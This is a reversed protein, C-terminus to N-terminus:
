GRRMSVKSHARRATGRAQFVAGRQDRANGTGDLLAALQALTPAEFIAVPSIPAHFTERIHTVLQLASLSNGGLHFFNEHKEIGAIGLIREWIDALRAVMPNEELPAPRKSRVLQEPLPLGGTDLKGGATLPLSDLVVWFAPVMYEPLQQQAYTRLQAILEKRRASLLPDNAYSRGKAPRVNVSPRAGPKYFLVDYSGDTAGASWRIEVDYAAEAALEWWKEPDIGNADGDAPASRRIQGVTEVSTRRLQESVWRELNFRANPVRHIAVADPQHHCLVQAVQAVSTLHTGWYFTDFSGTPRLQGGVELVVDYRFRTLENHYHGRKLQVEIGTVRDLQASTFCEPDVTAQQEDAMKESIIWQLRKMPLDPAAHSWEISTHFQRLLSYSRLDGLYIFGEDNVLTSVKQLVSHLYEVSPFHQIISNLIAADFREGAIQSLDDATCHVLRPTIPLPSHTLQREVYELAPKFFDTGVYNASHPALRFLLLGTGCGLELINRPKRALIRAVTQNVQERMEEEPIPLGTYSSRWGLINFTPDPCGNGFDALGDYYVREYMHHWQQVREVAPRSDIGSTATVDNVKATIYAIIQKDDGHEHVMAIAERVASHKALVSEIEELEVRFGRVKVQRDFRGIFDITGDPLYRARDGTRYLRAGPETSFPDPLFSRATLDPRNLYGLALGDGGIYLEGTEGVPVAKLDGDLIYVTSHSIARGIPVSAGIPTDRTVTHYCSFTTGETPGYANVLILDPITALIKRVHAPPVVDGGTILQQVGRLGEPKWDVMQRFLATTLFMTTVRHEAVMECIEDLSPRRSPMLVLKGGNLLSGWIDFTSADFSLPSLQLIVEHPGLKVYNTNKVLRVVAQHPVCVGKPRGTSGSTYMVYAPSRANDTEPRPRQFRSDPTVAPRTDLCLTSIDDPINSTSSSHTLILAPQAEEFILQTRELPLEPDLPLYAAGAKLVALVGVITDLGREVTIAVVAGPGTGEHRLVNALAEAQKDLESYTLDSDPGVVAVADPTLAAQQEFISHITKDRPYSAPADL